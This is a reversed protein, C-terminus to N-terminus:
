KCHKKVWNAPNQIIYNRINQLDKPTWIVSEHYKNKWQFPLNNKNAYRKVSGKYSGIVVGLNNRQRGFKNTEWLEKWPVELTLIGHMHNPMIIFADLEIFSYHKPIELWYEKAQIGIETLRMSPDHGTREPLVEGFYENMQYTSITVLYSGRAGYDHTQLRMSENRYRDFYKSM